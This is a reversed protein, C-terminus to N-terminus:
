ISKLKIFKGHITVGNTGDCSDASLIKGEYSVYKVYTTKYIKLNLLNGISLSVIRETVGSDTHDDNVINCVFNWVCLEHKVLM